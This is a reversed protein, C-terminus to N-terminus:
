LQSRREKRPQNRKKKGKKVSKKRGKGKKGKNPKKAGNKKNAERVVRMNPAEVANQQNYSNLSSEQVQQNYSNLSSEESESGAGASIYVAFLITALFVLKMISPNSSRSGVTSLLVSSSEGHVRGM